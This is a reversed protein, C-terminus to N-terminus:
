SPKHRVFLTTITPSPIFYNKASFHLFLAYKKTSEIKNEVKAGSLLTLPQQLETTSCKRPLSSTTLELRMLLEFYPLSKERGKKNSLSRFIMDRHANRALSFDVLYVRISYIGKGAFIGNQEIRCTFYLLYLTFQVYSKQVIHPNKM